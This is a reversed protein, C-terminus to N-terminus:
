EDLHNNFIGAEWRQAMTSKRRTVRTSELVSSDDKKGPPKARREEQCHTAPLDDTRDGNLAGDRSTLQPYVPPSQSELTSVTASPLCGGPQQRLRQARLEAERRQEDEIEQEILFNTQPKWPRLTYPQSESRKEALDQCETSDSHVSNSEELVDLVDLSERSASRVLRTQWGPQPAVPVDDTQQEFVKKREEVEQPVGKDYLGKVKGEEKLKEERKTDMEIERQVFFGMRNKDKNKLFPSGSSLQSLLPKTKIEVMEESSVAKSIGREKRLIEERELALRIEKEIPTELIPKQEPCEYNDTGINQMEISAGGDSTYGYGYDNTMEGLGSDLDDTSCAALNRRTSGFREGDNDELTAIKEAIFVSNSVPSKPGNDKEDADTYDVRVAKVMITPSTDLAIGGKDHLLWASESPASSHGLSGHSRASPRPSTPEELRPKEMLLFQQRAAVFNKQPSNIDEPHSISSEDHFSFSDSHEASKQMQSEDPKQTFDEVSPTGELNFSKTSVQAEAFTTSKKVAQNRILARREKDLNDGDTTEKIIVTQYKREEDDSFLKVPNKGKDYKRLDFNAEKKITTLKGDRATSVASPVGGLGDNSLTDQDSMDQIVTVKVAHIISDDGCDIKLPIASFSPESSNQTIPTLNPSVNTQHQLSVNSGDKNVLVRNEVSFHNSEANQMPVPAENELYDETERPTKLDRSLVINNGEGEKLQLEDIAEVHVQDETGTPIQQTIETPSKDRESGKNWEPGGESIGVPLTGSVPPETHLLDKSATAARDSEVENVVTIPSAYTQQKKYKTDKMQCLAQWPPTYKFMKM